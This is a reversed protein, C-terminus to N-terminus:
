TEPKPGSDTLRQSEFAHSVHRQVTSGAHQGRTLFKFMFYIPGGGNRSQRGLYNDAMARHCSLSLFQLCFTWRRGDSGTRKLQGLDESSGSAKRVYLAPCLILPDPCLIPTEPCLRFFHMKTPLSFNIIMCSGVLLVSNLCVLYVFFYGLNCFMFM